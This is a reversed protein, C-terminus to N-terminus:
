TNNILLKERIARFSHIEITCWRMLKFTYLQICICLVYRFIQCCRVGACQLPNFWLSLQLRDKWLINLKGLKFVNEGRQKQECVWSVNHNWTCQAFFNKDLTTMSIALFSFFNIFDIRKVLKNQSRAASPGMKWKGMFHFTDIPGFHWDLLNKTKSDNTIRGHSLRFTYFTYPLFSLKLENAFNRKLAFHM